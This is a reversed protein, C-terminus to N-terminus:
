FLWGRKPLFRPVRRCYEEYDEGFRSRLEREELLVVIWLAPVSLGIVVYVAPYNLILALGSLAVVLNVYRPNRSRAYVGDTMLSGPAESDLEPTGVLIKFKLQRRIRSEGYAGLLYLAIGPGILSWHYGWHVALMREVFTWLSAALGVCVAGVITFAAAKGLRRWFGAIPHILLWYVIAAPLTVVILAALYYGVTHLTESM